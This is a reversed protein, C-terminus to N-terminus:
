AGIVYVTTVAERRHVRAIRRVEILKAQTGDAFLWRDRRAM